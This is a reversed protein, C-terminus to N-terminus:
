TKKAPPVLLLKSKHRCASFFETRSNINAGEPHFMIYYSETLCLRCIGTVPNFAPAQALQKFKISYSINKDKLKWIHGALCTATRNSKTDTKFNQKHNGWRLKWSPESLGTYYDTVGTDHRTVAGQYIVCVPVCKGNMVCPLNAKQCNCDKKIIEEKKQSKQSLKKNHRSIVEAM